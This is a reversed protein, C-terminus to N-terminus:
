VGGYGFGCVENGHEEGCGPCCFTRMWLIGFSAEAYTVVTWPNIDLGRMTQAWIPTLDCNWRHHAFPNVPCDCANM